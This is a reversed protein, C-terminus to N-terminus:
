KLVLKSESSLLLDHYASIEWLSDVLDSLSQQNRLLSGKEKGRGGDCEERGRREIVLVVILDDPRVIDYRQLSHAWLPLMTLRAEFFLM